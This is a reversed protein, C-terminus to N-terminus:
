FKGIVSPFYSWKDSLYQNWVDPTHELSGTTGKHFIFWYIYDLKVQHVLSNKM